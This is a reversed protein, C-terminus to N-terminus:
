WSVTPQVSLHLGEPLNVLFPVGLFLETHGNGLEDPGTPIKVQPQLAMATAWPADGSENGWLNFKGGVAIDGFGSASAREGNSDAGGDTYLLPSVIVNLELRELVGVRVNTQAFTAQSTWPTAGKSKSYAWDFAGFEIQVHAPDVTHPTNTKNPRDVDMPRLEGPAGSGGSALPGTQLIPKSTAGEQAWARGCLLCVLLVAAGAGGRGGRDLRIMGAGMRRTQRM